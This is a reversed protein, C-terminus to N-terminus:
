LADTANTTLLVGWTLFWLIFTMLVIYVKGKTGFDDVDLGIVRYLPFQIVVAAAVPLLITNSQPDAGSLATLVAVFVGSLTAGTTVIVSRAYQSYGSSEDDDTTAETSTDQGWETDNTEEGTETAM